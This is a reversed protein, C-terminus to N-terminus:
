LEDMNINKKYSYDPQNIKIKRQKVVKTMDIDKNLETALKVDEYIQRVDNMIYPIIAVGYKIDLTKNMIESYYYLCDKMESYTLNYEKYYKDIQSMIQPTIEEIKFVDCIYEYLEQKYNDQGKNNEYKEEIMKKYCPMHYTKNQYKKSTQDKNVVEKCYPCNPLKAM